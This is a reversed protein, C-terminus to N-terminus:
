RRRHRANKVKPKRPSSSKRNKPRDPLKQGRQHDPTNRKQVELNDHHQIQKLIQHLKSKEPDTSHIFTPIMLNGCEKITTINVSYFINKASDMHTIEGILTNMLFNLTTIKCCMPSIDGVYFLYNKNIEAAQLIMRGSGCTPDIVVKGFEEEGQHIGTVLDVLKGLEDPTFFQGLKSNAFKLQYFEGLPDPIKGRSGKVLNYTEDFMQKFVHPIEKIQFRRFIKDIEEDKNDDKFLELFYDLFGDFIKYAEEQRGLPEFLRTFNSLNLM